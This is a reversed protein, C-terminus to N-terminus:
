RKTISMAENSEQGPGGARGLRLRRRLARAAALPWVAQAGAVVRESLGSRPGGLEVAFWVLLASLVGSAVWGARRSPVRSLAPWLSLAVFSATAVPVHAAAPEALVAVGLVAVGGAGLVLRGLPRAETLGLATVVHCAGLVVFGTTMVWRDDAGVAALASITDRTADYAAPQRSAALTWGGILAVPALAASVLAYRHV